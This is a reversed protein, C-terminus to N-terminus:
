RTWLSLFFSRRFCYRPCYHHYIASTVAYRLARPMTRSQLRLTITKYELKPAFLPSMGATLSLSNIGPFLGAM